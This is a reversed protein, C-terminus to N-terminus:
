TSKKKSKKKLGELNKLGKKRQAHTLGIEKDLKTRAAEDTEKELTERLATEHKKLKKLVKKLYKRKQKRKREDSSLFAEAKEILKHLNM